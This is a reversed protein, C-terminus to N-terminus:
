AEEDEMRSQHIKILEDVNTANCVTTNLGNSVLRDTLQDVYCCRILELKRLIPFNKTNEENELFKKFQYMAALDNPQPMFGTVRGISFRDKIIYIGYERKDM